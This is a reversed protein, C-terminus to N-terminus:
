TRIEMEKRKAKIVFGNCWAHKRVKQLCIAKYGEQGYIRHWLGSM